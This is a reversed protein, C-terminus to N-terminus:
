ARPASQAAGKKGRAERKPALGMEVDSFLQDMARDLEAEMARLDAKELEDLVLVGNPALYM